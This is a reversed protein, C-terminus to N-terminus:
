DLQRKPGPPPPAPPNPNPPPPEELRNVEFDLPINIATNADIEWGCPIRYSDAIERAKLYTAFGNPHVKFILVRRQYSSVLNCINHFRGKPLNMDALSADGIKPDFTIHANLRTWPKNFPVTHTQKRISLKQTAFFDVIKQQDYIIRDPKRSVKIRERVFNRKNREFLDMVRDKLDITDVLHAQDGHIYCYYLNADEPIPRSNPIRVVTSPPPTPKPTQDLLAELRAIENLITDTKTKEADAETKTKAALERLKNLDLLKSKNDELSKELLSLDQEVQQILQPTPAPAKLLDQQKTIEKQLQQQKQQAAEIQEPTAPKLEGLLKEVTNSVDVQLLILILILVAVVNTLADMLSDLNVGGEENKKRRSAM